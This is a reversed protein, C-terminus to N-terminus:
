DEMQALLVDINAIENQLNTKKDLLYEKTYVYSNEQTKTVKFTQRIEETGDAKIVSIKEGKEITKIIEKAM